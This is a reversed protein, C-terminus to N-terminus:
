RTAATELDKADVVEPAGSPALKRPENRGMVTAILSLLLSIALLGGVACASALGPGYYLTFGDQDDADDMVKGVWVGVAAFWFFTGVLSLLTSGGGFCVNNPPVIVAVIAVILKLGTVVFGIIVLVYMSDKDDYDIEKPEGHKFGPGVLSDLRESFSDYGMEEALDYLPGGFEYVGGWLNAWYDFELGVVGPEDIDASLKSWYTNKIINADQSLGAIAVCGVGIGALTLVVDIIRLVKAVM